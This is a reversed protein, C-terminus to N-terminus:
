PLYKVYKQVMIVAAIFLRRGRRGQVVAILLRRGRRGQTRRRGVQYHVDDLEEEEPVIDELLGMLRM